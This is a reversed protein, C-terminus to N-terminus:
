AVVFLSGDRQVVDYKKLKLRRDGVCIGSELEYEYGHWPCVFHLDESFTQGQYTRDAAIVDVVKNILIGECAPGGSHVCQNAYAYYAGAHHFIGIEGRGTKVIRRDGDKLEAAKAVFVEPM